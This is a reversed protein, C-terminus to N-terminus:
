ELPTQQKYKAQKTGGYYVILPGTQANLPIKVVLQTVSKSVFATTDVIKDTAFKVGTAWNLYQGTITVNEGPRAPGSISTITLPVL